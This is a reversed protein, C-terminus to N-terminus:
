ALAITLVEGCDQILVTRALFLRRFTCVEYVVVVYTATLLLKAAVLLCLLLFWLAFM